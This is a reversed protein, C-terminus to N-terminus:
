SLGRLIGVFLRPHSSHAGNLCQDNGACAIETISEFNTAGQGGGTSTHHPRENKQILHARIDELGANAQIHPRMRVDTQGRHSPEELTFDQMAVTQTGHLRDPGTFDVPHGRSPADHM